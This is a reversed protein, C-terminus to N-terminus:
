VAEAAARDDEDGTETETEVVDKHGERGRESPEEDAADNGANGGGVNRAGEGVNGVDSRGIFAGLLEAIESRGEAHAEDDAGGDAAEEAVNVEAKGEPGGGYKTQGVGHVTEKDKGFGKGFLAAGFGGPVHGIGEARESEEARMGLEEAEGTDHCKEVEGLLREGRDKDDVSLITVSPGLAVDAEREGYDADAGTDNGAHEDAGEDATEALTAADKGTESKAGEAKQAEREGRAAPNKEGSNGEESQPSDSAWRYLGQHGPAYIWGRLALQLAGDVADAADAAHDAREEETTDEVDGDGGAAWEM